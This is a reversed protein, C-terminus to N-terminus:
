GAKQERHEPKIFLDFAERAFHAGDDSWELRVNNFTSFKQQGSQTFNEALAASGVMGVQPNGQPVFRVKNGSKAQIALIKELHEANVGNIVLVFNAM